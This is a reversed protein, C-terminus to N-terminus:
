PLEGGRESRWQKKVWRKYRNQETGIVKARDWEIVHNQEVVYDTVTSKHVTSLSEKRSSRTFVSKKVKDVETKYENLQTGFKRGTEGIYEVHELNCHM